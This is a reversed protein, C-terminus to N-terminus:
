TSVVQFTVHARGSKDIEMDVPLLGPARDPTSHDSYVVSYDQVELTVDFEETNEEEDEGTYTVVLNQNGIVPGISAIGYDRYCLEVNWKLKAKGYATHGAPVRLGLVPNFEIRVELDTVFSLDSM